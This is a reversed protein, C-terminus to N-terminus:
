GLPKVFSPTSGRFQYFSFTEMLIRISKVGFVKGVCRQVWKNSEKTYLHPLWLKQYSM